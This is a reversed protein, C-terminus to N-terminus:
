PKGNQMRCESKQMEEWREPHWRYVVVTRDGRATLPTTFRAVPEAATLLTHLTRSRRTNFELEQSELVVYALHPSGLVSPAKSYLCTKRGSYLGTLGMTDLVEGPMDAQHALWEAAQRHCLFVHNLPKSAEVLCAGGAIAVALWPLAACLLPALRGIGTRGSTIRQALRRGTALLGDGGCGIGVVLIPLLHRACLYGERSAFWTAALGYLGIFLYDFWDIPRVLVRRLRWLGLLAFPGVWYGFADALEESCLKAVAGVGRRRISLSPDKYRFSM